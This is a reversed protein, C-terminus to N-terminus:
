NPELWYENGSGEATWGVLTINTASDWYSVRWWAWAKSGPSGCVPGNLVRFISGGPIVGIIKGTEAESRVNNPVGPTVRGNAGAFLRSPLGGPCAVPKFFDASGLSAVSNVREYENITVFVPSGVFPSSRVFTINLILAGDVDVRLSRTAMYLAKTEKGIYFHVTLLENPKFGLLLQVLKSESIIKTVGHDPYSINWKDVLQGQPHDLTLTYRGFGMGPLWTFSFGWCGNKGDEGQYPIVTGDPYTLTAVPGQQIPYGCAVPFLSSYAANADPPISVWKISDISPYESPPLPGGGGSFYNLEAPVGV